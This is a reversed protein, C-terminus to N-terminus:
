LFGDHAMSSNNPRVSYNNICQNIVDVGGKTQNYDHIMVPLKKEDDLVESYGHLTSLLIVPPKKQKAQYSV